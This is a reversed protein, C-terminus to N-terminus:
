KGTDGTSLAAVNDKTVAYVETGVYASTRKATKLEVLARIAKYGMDQPDSVVSGYIVNKEIYRLIEPYSGSGVVKIQGVKNLDVVMQTVGLTDRPNTCFIANIQPNNTILENAIEGASFIGMGSIRIEEIDVKGKYSKVADKFGTVRLNQSVDGADPIYGNLIIAVKAKGDTADAVMKGGVTGVEYNNNGIYAMRGSNNADSEVTVVPINNKIANNIVPTFMTEDPVHTAIGDVNSAIAINLYQLEEDLNTFRPSNFEVAVNFERAAKFAGKKVDSWFPDYSSPAIVAFHYDPKEVSQAFKDDIPASEERVSNILVTAIAITLVLFLSIFLIVFKKKKNM